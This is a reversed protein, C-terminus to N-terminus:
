AESDRKFWPGFKKPDDSLMGAKRLHNPLYRIFVTLIVVFSPIGIGFVSFNDSLGILKRCIGVVIVAYFGAAAVSIGGVAGVIQSVAYLRKWNM